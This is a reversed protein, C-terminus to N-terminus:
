AALRRKIAEVMDGVNEFGAIEAHKFRVGFSEEVKLIVQVHNMSDWQPVDATTSAANLSISSSKFFANFVENLKAYIADDNM